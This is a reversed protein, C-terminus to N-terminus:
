VGDNSCSPGLEPPAQGVVPAAEERGLAPSSSPARAVRRRHASYDRESEHTTTAITGRTRCSRTGPLAGCAPLWDRPESRLARLADTFSFTERIYDAIFQTKQDMPTTQSWPM